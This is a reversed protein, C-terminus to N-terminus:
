WIVWKMADGDRRGMEWSTHRTPMPAEILELRKSCPRRNCRLRQQVHMRGQRDTHRDKWGRRTHTSCNSFRHPDHEDQEDRILAQGKHASAAWTVLHV